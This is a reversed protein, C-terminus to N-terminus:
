IEESNFMGEIPRVFVGKELDVRIIFEDVSPIMVEENSTKVVYLDSAGRNILDSVKGYIKQTDIDIVPLGIVDAIFYEGEDLDFDDRLAGAQCDIVPHKVRRGEVMRYHDAYLMDAKSVFQKFVSAKAVKYEKYEENSKLYIRKLEALDYPTNCWSDIKLGGHCGHTNIIKGCEIYKKESM